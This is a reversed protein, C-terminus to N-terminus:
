ELMRAWGVGEQFYGVSVLELWSELQQGSNDSSPFPLTPYPLTPVSPPPPAHLRWVTPTPQLGSAVGRDQGLAGSGDEKATPTQGEWRPPPPTSSPSSLFCPMGFAPPPKGTRKMLLHVSSGGSQIIDIAETHTM